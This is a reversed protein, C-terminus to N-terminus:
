FSNTNETKLRLSVIAQVDAIASTYWHSIIENGLCFLWATRLAVRFSVGLRLVLVCSLHDPFGNLYSLWSRRELPSGWILTWSLTDLFHSLYSHEKVSNKGELLNNFSVSSKTLGIKRTAWLLFKFCWSCISQNPLVFSVPSLKIFFLSLIM